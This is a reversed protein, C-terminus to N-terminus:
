SDGSVKDLLTILLSAWIVVLHQVNFLRIPSSKRLVEVSHSTHPSRGHNFEFLDQTPVDRLVHKAFALPEPTHSSARPPLMQYPSQQSVTHSSSQNTSGPVSGCIRMHVSSTHTPIFYKKIGFSEHYTGRQNTYETSLREATISFGMMVVLVSSTEYTSLTICMRSSAVRSGNSGGPSNKSM